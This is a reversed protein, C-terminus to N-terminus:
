ARTKRRGSLEILRDIAEAKTQYFAGTSSICAQRLGSCSEPALLPIAHQLIPTINALETSPDVIWFVSATELQDPSIWNSMVFQLHYESHAREIEVIAAACPEDIIVGFCVILCDRKALPTM